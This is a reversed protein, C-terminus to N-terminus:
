CKCSINGQLKTDFIFQSVIFNNTGFDSLHAIIHFAPLFIISISFSIHNFISRSLVSSKGFSSIFIFTSFFLLVFTM